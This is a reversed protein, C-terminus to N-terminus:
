NTKCKQEDKLSISKIISNQSSRYDTPLQISSSSWHSREFCRKLRRFHTHSALLSYIFSIVRYM